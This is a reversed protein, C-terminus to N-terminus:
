SLNRIMLTRRIPSYYKIGDVIAYSYIDVYKYLYKTNDIIEISSTNNQHLTFMKGGISSYYEYGIAGLSSCSLKITNNKFSSSIITPRSPVINFNINQSGEYNNEVVTITAVRTGIDTNGKPYSVMYNIQKGKTTVQYIPNIESGTYEFKNAKLSITPIIQQKSITFTKYQEGEYGNIGTIKVTATGANLNNQYTVLFDENEILGEIFVIPTKNNGTYTTTTYELIADPLTKDTNINPLDQTPGIQGSESNDSQNNSFRPVGWGYYKDWGTSGLDESINKLSSIASDMNINKNESKLVAVSSAIYPSAFSTGSAYEYSNNCALKINSGPAVFDLNKGYNSYSALNNYNDIAGVSIVYKSDAPYSNKMNTSENGSAACSIIKNNYASKLYADMALRNSRPLTGGFSMNIIDANCSTAYQIAQCLDIFSGEGDSDLAKIALITSNTSEAIIGSTMTGHGDDDIYSDFGIGKSLNSITTNNFIEHSPNIGTDIVAVVIDKSTNQKKIDLGIYSTGWGEYSVKFPIDLLVNEEGYINKLENYAEETKEETSYELITNNEYSIGSDAEGLDKIEKTVLLRKTSFNSSVEYDTDTENIITYNKEELVKEVTSKDYSVKFKDKFSKNGIKGNSKSIKIKKYSKHSTNDIYQNITHAKKIKNNSEAFVSLNLSSFCLLFSLVIIYRRKIKLNKM